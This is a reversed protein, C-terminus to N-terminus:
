PCDVLPRDVLACTAASEEARTCWRVPCVRLPPVERPARVGPLPSWTRDPRTLGHLGFGKAAKDLQDLLDTMRGVARDGSAMLEIVEALHSDAGTAALLDTLQGNRGYEHCLKKVREALETPADNSPRSTPM